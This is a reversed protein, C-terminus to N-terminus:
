SGPYSLEQSVKMFVYIGNTTCTKLSRKLVYFWTPKATTLERHTGVIRKQQRRRNM